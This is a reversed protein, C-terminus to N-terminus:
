SEYKEVILKLGFKNCIEILNSIISVKKDDAM